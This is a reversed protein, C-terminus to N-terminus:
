QAALHALLDLVWEERAEKVAEATAVAALALLIQAPLHKRPRGAAHHLDAGAVADVERVIGGVTVSTIATSGSGYRRLWASFAAPSAGTGTRTTM